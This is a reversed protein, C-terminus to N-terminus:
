MNLIFFLTKVGSHTSVSLLHLLSTAEFNVDKTNYLSFRLKYVRLTSFKGLHRIMILSTVWSSNM